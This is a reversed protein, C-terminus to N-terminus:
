AVDRGIAATITVTVNATINYAVSLHTSLNTISTIEASTNAAAGKSIDEFGVNHWRIARPIIPTNFSGVVNTLGSVRVIPDPVTAIGSGQAGQNGQAGQAGTAGEVTGTIGTVGQAGLAGQSGQPGQAGQPGQPGTIGQPGTPGTIGTQGTQGTPGIEDTWGVTGDPNIGIAQGSSGISWPPFPLIFQDM